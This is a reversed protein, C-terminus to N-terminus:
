RNVMQLDAPMRGTEADVIRVHFYHDFMMNATLIVLEHRGPELDLVFSRDACSFAKGERWGSELFTEAVLKGDCWIRVGNRASWFSTGVVLKLRMAQPAAFARCVYAAGKPYGTNVARLDIAGPDVDGAYDWTPTFLRWDKVTQWLCPPPASPKWTTGQWADPFAFDPSVFWPAPIPVTESLAGASLTVPNVLRAPDGTVRAVGNSPSLMNVTGRWGPPLSLKPAACTGGVVNWPIDYTFTTEGVRNVARDPRLQCVLRPVPGLTDALAAYRREREATLGRRLPEPAGVADAFALAMEVNGVANPHILDRLDRLGTKMQRVRAIARWAPSWFDVFVAGHRQALAAIRANMRVLRRNAAAAPDCTHTTTGCLIFRRPHCRDKLDQIFRDYEAEWPALDDQSFTPFGHDNIGLAIVIVDLRNTFVEGLTPVRAFRSPLEPKKLSQREYGHWSHVHWGGYGLGIINDFGPTATERAVRVLTTIYGMESRHGNSTISDGIWAV